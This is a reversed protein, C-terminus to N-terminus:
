VPHLRDVIEDSVTRREFHDASVAVIAANEIVAKKLRLEATPLNQRLEFKDAFATRPAVPQPDDGVAEALRLRELHLV